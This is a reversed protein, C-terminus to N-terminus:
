CFSLSGVRQYNSLTWGIVTVKKDLFNKWCSGRLTTCAHALVDAHCGKAEIICIHSKLAM